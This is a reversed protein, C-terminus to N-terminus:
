ADERAAAFAAALRRVAGSPPMGIRVWGDLGFSACDRVAFGRRLLRTRFASADDVRALIFNARGDQVEFGAGRLAEVLTRRTAGADRAAERQTADVRVAALGASIAQASVSWSPQGAELRAILEAPGTLYGLRVGPIAHLKTMSHAVLVPAGARVLEEADWADEVFADYAVDLLLAGGRHAVAAAVGEITSQDLYGGTPNNPNCLFALPREGLESLDLHGAELDAFTRGEISAGAATAAAEYEGFTPGFIVARSGPGLFMRAALHIAGTAGATVLLESPEVGELSALAERLSAADTEPYRRLDAEVAAVLVDPHPGSPNLSASLDLVDARTLGLADLEAQQLGGHVVDSM